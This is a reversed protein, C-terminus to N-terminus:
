VPQTDAPKAEPAPAAEDAAATAVPASSGSCGVLAFGLATCLILSSTLRSM